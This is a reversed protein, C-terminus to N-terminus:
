ISYCASLCDVYCCFKSFSSIKFINLVLSELCTLSRLTEQSIELVSLVLALFHIIWIIYLNWIWSLSFKYIWSGHIRFLSANSTFTIWPVIRRKANPIVLQEYFIHKIDTGPLTHYKGAMRCFPQSIHLINERM